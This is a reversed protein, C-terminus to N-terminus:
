VEGSRRYHFRLDAAANLRKVDDLLPAVTRPAIDDVEIRYTTVHEGHDRFIVPALRFSQTRNEPLRLLQQNPLSIHLTGSNKPGRLLRLNIALSIVLCSLLLAPTVPNIFSFIRHSELPVHVEFFPDNGTSELVLEDDRRDMFLDNIQTAPTERLSDILDLSYSDGASIRATRLAMRGPRNGPDIRIYDSGTIPVTTDITTLQSRGLPATSSREIDYSEESGRWFITVYDSQQAEFQLHIDLGASYYQCIVSLTLFALALFVFAATERFFSAFRSLTM